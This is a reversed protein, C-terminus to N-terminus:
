MTQETDQYYLDKQRLKLNSDLKKGSTSFRYLSDESLYVGSFENAKISKYMHENCSFAASLDSCRMIMSFFNFFEFEYNKLCIM